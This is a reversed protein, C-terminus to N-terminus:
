ITLFRALHIMACAGVCLMGLYRAVVLDQSAKIRSFTRLAALVIYCTFWVKDGRVTGAVKLLKAPRLLGLRFRTSSEEEQEKQHKDM